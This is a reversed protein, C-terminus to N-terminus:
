QMITARMSTRVGKYFHKELFHAISNAEQFKTYFGWRLGRVQGNADKCKMKANFYIELEHHTLPEIRELKTTPIARHFGRKLPRGKNQGYSGYNALITGKRKM